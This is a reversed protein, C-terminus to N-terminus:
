VKDLDFLTHICAARFRGADAEPHQLLLFRDEWGPTADILPCQKELLEHNAACIKVGITGSSADHASFAKPKMPFAGACFDGPPVSHREGSCKRYASKSPAPAYGIPISHPKQGASQPGSCSIFPPLLATSADRPRFRPDHISIEFRHSHRLCVDPMAGTLMHFRPM